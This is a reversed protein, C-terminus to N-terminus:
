KSWFLLPTMKAEVLNAIAVDKPYGTIGCQAIYITALGPLLKCFTIYFQYKTAKVNLDNVPLVYKQIISM